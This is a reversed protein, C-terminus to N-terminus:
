EGFENAAYKDTLDWEEGPQKSKYCCAVIRAVFAVIIVTLIIFWIM